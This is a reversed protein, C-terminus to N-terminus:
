TFIHSFSRVHLQRKTLETPVIEWHTYPNISVLERWYVVPTGNM